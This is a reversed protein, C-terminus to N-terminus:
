DWKRIIDQSFGYLAKDTVIGRLPVDWSEVGLKEVRQCEHALGM